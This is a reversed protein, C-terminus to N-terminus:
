VAGAHEGAADIRWLGGAQHRGGRQAPHQGGALRWAWETAPWRRGSGDAVCFEPGGRPARVKVDRHVIKSAHLYALGELCQRLVEAIDQEDLEAHKRRVDSLSGLECFEMVVWLTQQFLYTEMYKVVCPHDSGRLVDIERMLEECQADSDVPIVKVAVMEGDSRRRARFVTGFSGKGLEDQFDACRAGEGDVRAEGQTYAVGTGYAETPDRELFSRSISNM